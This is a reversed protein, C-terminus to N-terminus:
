AYLMLLLKAYPWIGSVIVMLLLKAYPWIGSFILVLFLLPYIGSSHMEQVTNGLSVAFLAPLKIQSEGGLYVVLEVSAGVTSLNSSLLLLMPGIIVM